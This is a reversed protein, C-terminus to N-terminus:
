TRGHHCIEFPKNRLMLRRPLEVSDKKALDVFGATTSDLRERGQSVARGRQQEAFGAAALRVRQSPQAPVEAHPPRLPHHVMGVKHLVM